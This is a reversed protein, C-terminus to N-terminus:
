SRLAIGFRIGRYTKLVALGIEIRQVCWDADKESWSKEDILWAKLLDLNIQKRSYKSISCIFRDLRNVDCPHYSTPFLNLYQEFLIRSTKGSIIDQLRVEDSTTTVTIELGNKKAYKRLGNAFERSLVNYDALQIQPTDRPVINAIYFTKNDKKTITIAIAPHYPDNEKLVACSAEGVASAYTLSQEALYQWGEEEQAFRRINAILDQDNYSSKIKVEIFTKINM